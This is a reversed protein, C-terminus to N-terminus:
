RVQTFPSHVIAKNPRGQADAFLARDRQRIYKAEFVQVGSDSETIPKVMDRALAYTLLQTFYAPIGDSSSAITDDITPKFLYDMEVSDANTYLAAGYIEYPAAPYVGIPMLMDAPLEFANQWENLPDESLADLAAKKVAFRWRNSQLENEYIRDFLRTGVTAGYRNDTLATLPKEGLLVLADSILQLKSVKEIAM